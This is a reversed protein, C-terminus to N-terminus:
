LTAWKPCTSSLSSVKSHLCLLPCPAGWVARSRDFNLLLLLQEPRVYLCASLCISVICLFCVLVGGSSTRKCRCWGHCAAQCLGRCVCSPCQLCASFRPPNLNCHLHLPAFCFLSESPTKFFLKSPTDILTELSCHFVYSETKLLDYKRKKHKLAASTQWNSNRKHQKQM